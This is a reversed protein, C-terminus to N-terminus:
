RGGVFNQNTNPLGMYTDFVSINNTHKTAAHAQYKSAIKAFKEGDVHLVHEQVAASAPNHVLPHNFIAPSAKSDPGLLGHIIGWLKYIAYGVAAFAAIIGWIPATVIGVIVGLAGIATGLITIGGAVVLAISLGAVAKVFREVSGPNKHIYDILKGLSQNLYNLGKTVDPLLVWGLETMTSTLQAKANMYQQAVAQNKFAEQGTVVDPARQIASYILALQQAAQPTAFLAGVRSGQVGMANHFDKIINQRAIAEPYKAFENTEFQALLSMWKVTDFKGNTFFKAHGKADTMGMDRLAENSKGTLLGSGFIGPISRSMAAILHTGGRTGKIGLRNLLAVLVVMNEDSVGLTSKAVSQSYQLANAVESLNGPIVLSVKNLLDLYNSMSKADYHGALHSARIGIGISEEASTGKMMYQVDAFKTFIPVLSTLQRAPMGMGTAMQKVMGAIETSSFVTVGSMKEIVHRMNDMEGTTGKTALQIAIMQKQLQAAKDIAFILPVALAFGAGATGLGIHFLTKIKALKLALVDAETGAKAMNLCLMRLANTANDTVSLKIAIKYAENM